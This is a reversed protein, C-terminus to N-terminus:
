IELMQQSKATNIKANFKLSKLQKISITKPAPHFAKLSM